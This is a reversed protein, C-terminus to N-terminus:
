DGNRRYLEAAEAALSAFLGWQSQHWYEITAASYLCRALNHDDGTKRFLSAAQDYSQLALMRGKVSSQHDAASAESLLHLGALQDREKGSQPPLESITIIPHAIAGSYEHSELVLTYRGKEAADFIALESEDRLLPSNFYRSVGAPSQIALVLDLGGQDVEVLYSTGASAEFAFALPQGTGLSAQYPIDHPLAIAQSAGPETEAWVSLFVFVLTGALFSQIVTGDLNPRWVLARLWTLLRM